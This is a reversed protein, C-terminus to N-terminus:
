NAYGGWEFVALRDEEGVEGPGFIMMKLRAKFVTKFREGGSKGAKLGDSGGRNIENVVGIGGGHKFSLIKGAGRNKKSEAGADTAANDLVSLEGWIGIKELWAVPMVRVLGLFIGFPLMNGGGVSQKSIVALDGAFDRTFVGKLIDDTAGSETNHINDLFKM